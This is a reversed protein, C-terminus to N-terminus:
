NKKKAKIKELLSPDVPSKLEEAKAAHESARAYQGQQFLV